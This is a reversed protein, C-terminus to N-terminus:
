EAVEVLLSGFADRAQGILASVGRMANDIMEPSVGDSSSRMAVTMVHMMGQIQLLRDDVIEYQDGDVKQELLFPSKGNTPLHALSSM